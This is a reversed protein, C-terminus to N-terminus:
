QTNQPLSNLFLWPQTILHEVREQLVQPPPFSNQYKFRRSSKPQSLAPATEAPGRAGTPGQMLEAPFRSQELLSTLQLPSVEIGGLFKLAKSCINGPFSTISMASFGPPHNLGSPQVKPLCGPSPSLGRLSLQDSRKLEYVTGVAPSRGDRRSSPWTNM